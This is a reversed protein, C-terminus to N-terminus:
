TSYESRAVLSSNRALWTSRIGPPPLPPPTAADPAVFSPLPPFTLALAAANLSARVFAFCNVVKFPRVTMM